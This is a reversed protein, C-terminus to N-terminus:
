SAHENAVILATIGLNSGSTNHFEIYCPARPLVLQVTVDSTTQDQWIVTNNLNPIPFPIGLNVIMSLSSTAFQLQVEGAYLPLLYFKDVTNNIVERDSILCNNPMYAGPAIAAYPSTPFPYDITRWDDRALAQSTELLMYGVTMSFAPDLNGISFSLFDGKVPGKGSTRWLGGTNVAAVYWEEYALTTAADAALWNMGIRAFPVTSAPNSIVANVMLIYGPRTFPVVVTSSGGAPIVVSTGPPVLAHLGHLEARGSWDPWGPM